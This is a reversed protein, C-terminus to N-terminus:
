TGDVILIRNHGGQVYMGPGTPGGSGVKLTGTINADEAFLSGVDIVSANLSNAAINGATLNRIRANDIYVNDGDVVLLGRKPAGQADTAVLSVRGAVLLAESTLVGGIVRADLMLAPNATIGGATAKSSFAIRSSVGAPAIRVDVSLLGSASMDAYGVELLDIAQAHINVDDGIASVQASLAQVASATAPLGTDPDFVEARLDTVSLALASEPGTAAMLDHSASARAEGVSSIVETRIKQRDLYAGASGSSDELLTERIREISERASEQVPGLLETVSEGVEAAITDIEVDLSTFKIDPTTVALWGSWEASEPGIFIGRVVHPTNGPFVRDLTWKWPDAYPISDSDFVLDGSEDGVRVQVRVNRVGPIGSAAWVEIGPQRPRGQDDKIEAPFVQWGQMPMPQPGVLHLPGDFVPTYDAAQNWDYDSPDVETLDVIVDLNSKYVAGDVRFLKDVYGNRASTWRVIDGPELVRFEPGLVFTHRRARLAESLAWKMLRQVQGHYPVLDLSVSAMLRRNGDLVELDPRLLPPAKKTNWGEAPNPYTADVGNVTDALSFFPTFSQEETSLIDADTFAMVPAGPPGVYVKYTGGVEVLRANAATLLAEVTTAVQAGVQVEGGARYTPENGSPGAISAQAANIAAIWNAAPLRVPAIAQAGYVWQGNYRIGRLVNYLQVIPNFDYANGGWTAPNDSRQAGSGGNTSDQAPNYWRVGYTAFKLNPIGSFLPKDGEDNREPALATVVVYPVGYGVRDAGYPHEASSVHNVLLPDAVTQSGDYFRVWLHDRGGKRYELVPRGIVQPGIVGPFLLGLLSGAAGTESSGLTCPVGDVIVQQLSRVPLDGLAIVRTSMIDGKGWTNHYALSGATCNWGNNISRPVDEGGQLQAQVGFKPKEPEGQMAKGILSVAIGTAVQLAAATVGAMFSGAGFLFSGVAAFVPM